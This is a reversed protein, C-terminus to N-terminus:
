LGLGPWECTFVLINHDNSKDLAWSHPGSKLFYISISCLSVNINKNIKKGHSLLTFGRTERSINM